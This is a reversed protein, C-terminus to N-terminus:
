SLRLHQDLLGALTRSHPETVMTYHDGPATHVSIRGEGVRRWVPEANFADTVEARIFVICGDFATPKYHRYAAMAAGHVRRFSVPLHTNGNGGILDPRLPQRGMLMRARDLLVRAKGKAYDFRQGRPTRLLASIDNIPRNIRYRLWQKWPLFRAHVATDILLVPDVQQGQRKLQQAMEFAVLGGFSYGGVSYPGDPQLQRMQAIYDSAMEPITAHPDEGLELGRAQIGYVPRSTQLSSLLSRFELAVGGLGPILFFPRGEGARLLVVQRSATAGAEGLAAELQGLTPAQLLLTLPLDHGTLRHVEAFLYVAMLSSGGLDFFNDQPDVESLGFLDQWLRRLDLKAAGASPHNHQPEEVRRATSRPSLDPHSRIGDLSEPNALIGINRVPNGNVADTMAAESQKGSHTMPLSSVQLVLDPVHAASAAEALRRRIRTILGADLSLGDRLVVLLVLRGETVVAPSRQEVAMVQRIEPWGSLLEYIEVPGIRIGRINLVGDSRGHLRIGGSETWSMLDGQTWLGPNQSYYAKHLREGDVDGLFAIPRSPFPTACVMEGVPNDATSGVVRVDMGLSPCQIEGSRVPVDPSGLVFCGLIDTGGSMSHVPVPKANKWLWLYQDDYLIAGTSLVSRLADLKFTTSPVLGTTECLRLYAPSTGFVTVAHDAVIRWLTATGDLPGDYLVIRSGSALASIQWNWMMWSCSTHFFMTDDADLDFHLRHEKVHELLTGGAGHVICKPLGTTGSTFMVCLPHNFPFRPWESQPLSPGSLMDRLEYLPADPVEAMFVGDLAVIARLHPLAAAIEAVRDALPKGTDFPAPALNAFLIVPEIQRFRGIVAETGMEPGVTSYTAGLAAAALTAIVVEASNRALCAVREGRRLGMQQLSGALREVSDRLEGRTLCGTDQGARVSVVAYDENSFSPSLLNDAYNLTLEPFFIADKVSSGTCAPDSSGGWRLLSWHLLAHWFQSVHSVSWNQLDSGNLFDTSAQDELAAKFKSLLSPRSERSAPGIIQIASCLKESGEPPMCENALEHM